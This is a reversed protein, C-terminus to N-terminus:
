CKLGKIALRETSLVVGHCLLFNYSSLDDLHKTFKETVFSILCSNRTLNVLHDLTQMPICPHHKSPDHFIM